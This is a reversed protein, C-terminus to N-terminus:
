FMIAFISFLVFYSFPASLTVQTSKGPAGAPGVSHLGALAAAEEVKQWFALCSRPSRVASGRWGRSAVEQRGRADPSAM